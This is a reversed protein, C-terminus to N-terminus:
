EDISWAPQLLNENITPTNSEKWMDSAHDKERIRKVSEPDTVDLLRLALERAARPSKEMRNWMVAGSETSMLFSGMFKTEFVGVLKEHTIQVTIKYATGLDVRGKPGMMAFWFYEGPEIPDSEHM